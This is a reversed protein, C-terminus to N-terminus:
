ALKLSHEAFVDSLEKSLCDFALELEKMAQARQSEEILDSGPELYSLGEKFRQDGADIVIPHECIDLVAQKEADSDADCLAVYMGQSLAWRSRYKWTDIWFNQGMCQHGWEAYLTEVMHAPTPQGPLEDIKAPRRTICAAEAGVGSWGLQYILLSAAMRQAGERFCNRFVDDNIRVITSMLAARKWHEDPTGTINILMPDQTHARGKYCVALALAVSKYCDCRTNHDGTGWLAVGHLKVRRM